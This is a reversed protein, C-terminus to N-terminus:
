YEEYNSDAHRFKFASCDNDVLKVNPDRPDTVDFCLTLKVMNHQLQDILLWAQPNPMADSTHSNRYQISGDDRVRERCTEWPGSGNEATRCSYLRMADYFYHLAHTLEKNGPVEQEPALPVYRGPVLTEYPVQLLHSHGEQPILEQAVEIEPTSQVLYEPSGMWNSVLM